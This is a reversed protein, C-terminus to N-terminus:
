RVTLDLNFSVSSINHGDGADFSYEYKKEGLRVRNKLTNFAGSIAEMGIVPFTALLVCGVISVYFASSSILPIVSGTVDLSLRLAETILMVVPLVLVSGIIFLYHLFTWRRCMTAIRLNAIVVVAAYVTTGFGPLGFALGKDDVYPMMGFFPVFFCILGHVIGLLQSLWYRAYSQYWSRDGELWYLEPISMMSSFKLDRDAAAFVVPPVSTFIVNYIM